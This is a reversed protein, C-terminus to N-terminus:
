GIFIEKMDSLPLKFAPQGYAYPMIEYEDFYIVLNKDEIYFKFNGNESKIQQIAQNKLECAEITKSFQAIVKNIIESKATSKSSFLSYPTDYFEGTKMDMNFARIYTGGHAGGTYEYSTLWVSLINGNINYAYSSHYTSSKQNPSNLDKVIEKEVNIQDTVNKSIKSNLTSAGTFGTFVPNSYEIKINSETSSKSTTTVGFKDADANSSNGTAAPASTISQQSSAESSSSSSDPASSAQSSSESSSAESSVSSSVASSVTNPSTNQSSCGATMSVLVAALIMATIFNM